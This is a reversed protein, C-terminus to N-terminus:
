GLLYRLPIAVRERWARESHEAGPFKETMWDVGRTYGAAELRQDMRRQLPEYEADLTATGYDFYLKNRGSPPLADAMADVLDEGGAPWHTSVCGAAGFVDPYEELAYLSILGGMSSGMVCTHPPDPLTRYMNDIFPKVERVLLKLYADSYPVGRLRTIFLARLRQKLSRRVFKEPMYERWRNEGTNWVGVVIAGATAGDRILGTLAEDIGWDIGGYATSPDFLNQGDHMYIVPYRADGDDYGPPLWVEVPRSQVYQSLFPDHRRRTAVALSPTSTM